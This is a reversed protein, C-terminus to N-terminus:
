ATALRRSSWEHTDGYGLGTYVRRAVANESYMGLTCVGSESVGDCTLRATVALGLGTGREAQHVTIGSLHPHGALNPERVGCAVLGGDDSRVGVWHQGPHEFPRADTRPNAVALLARIEAVDDPGLVRVRAEGAVTPPPQTACLWEWDNGDALPLHRAVADLSGRQVTVRALADPVLAADVMVALLSEVDDPPGMLLLGNPRTHTQRPLALAEGLCHAPTSLPAPVDWRLFASGGGFGILEEHHSIEQLM